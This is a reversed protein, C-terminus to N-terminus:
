FAPHEDIRMAVKVEGLERRGQRLQELPHTIGAHSARQADANFERMKGGHEIEGLAV